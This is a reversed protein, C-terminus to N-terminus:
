CKTTLPHFISSSEMKLVYPYQRSWQQYRNVAAHVGKGRRCAYSDFVFRRDISPEIVNMIAHHIVRDRFPAAAIQRKKREYITFLRYRGPAYTLSTLEDQLGLLESELNLAFEAVTKSSQKGARAKRYANFLNEFSVVENWVRGVRKM